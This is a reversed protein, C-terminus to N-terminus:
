DSSSNKCDFKKMLRCINKNKEQSFEVSDMIKKVLMIGLGGKRRKRVIEELNPEKYNNYNFGIGYDVIDFTVTGEKNDEIYIELNEAPNCKNSHIILNACVEDVALVVKHVEIESFGIDTLVDSIFERIEKLKERQCPTKFKHM